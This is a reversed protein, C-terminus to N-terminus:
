KTIGLRIKLQEEEEILEAMTKHRHKYDVNMDDASASLRREEPTGFKEATVKELIFRAVALSPLVRRTDQRVMHAKVEGKSNVKGIKTVNTIEQESSLKALLQRANMVIEDDMMLDFTTRSEAYIEALEPVFLDYQANVWRYFTNYATGCIECAQKVTSGKEILECIQKGIRLRDKADTMPLRQDKPNFTVTVPKATSKTQTTEEVKRSVKKTPKKRTERKQAKTKRRPKITEAKVIICDQGLVEEVELKLNPDEEFYRYATARGIGIGKCLAGISKFDPAKSVLEAIAEQKEM